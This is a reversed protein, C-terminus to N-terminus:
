AAGTLRGKGGWKVELGWYFCWLGDHTEVGGKGGPMKKKKNPNKCVDRM